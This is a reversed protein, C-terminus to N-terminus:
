AVPRGDRLAVMFLDFEAIDRDTDRAQNCAAAWRATRTIVHGAALGLAAAAILLISM